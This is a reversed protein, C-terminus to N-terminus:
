APGEVNENSKCLMLLCGNGTEKIGLKCNMMGDGEEVERLRSGRHREARVGMVSRLCLETWVHAPPAALRGALRAISRYMVHWAGNEEALQPLMRDIAGLAIITM